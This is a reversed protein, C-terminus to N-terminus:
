GVPSDVEFHTRAARSRSVGQSVRSDFCPCAISRDAIPPMPRSLRSDRVPLWRLRASAAPLGCAVARSTAVACVQLCRNRPKFLGAAALLPRRTVQRPTSSLSSGCPCALELVASAGRAKGRVSYSLGYQRKHAPRLDNSAALGEPATPPHYEHVSHFAPIAFGSRSRSRRRM